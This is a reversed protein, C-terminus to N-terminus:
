EMEFLEYTVLEYTERGNELTKPKVLATGKRYPVFYGSEVAQEPTYYYISKENIGGTSTVDDYWAEETPNYVTFEVRMTGDGLDYLADAVSMDEYTDGWAEPQCVLGDIMRFEGGANEVDEKTLSRGFFRESRASITDLPFGRYYTDGQQVTEADYTNYNLNNWVFFLIEYADADASRFESDSQTPYWYVDRFQQESFNSLFINIEYRGKESLVVETMTPETVPPETVPPETVPPATPAETEAPLIQPAETPMTFQVPATTQPAPEASCGCILAMALLLALIRTMRKM